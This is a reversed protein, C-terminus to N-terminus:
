SERKGSGEKSEVIDIKDNNGRKRNGRKRNGRKKKGRKKKGRNKRKRGKPKKDDPLLACAGVVCSQGLYIGLYTISGAQEPTCGWFGQVDHETKVINRVETLYADTGGTTSTLRNPLLAEKYRGYRVSQLEKLKFALLQLRYGDTRISGRLVYEREKYECPDFSPKRLANVHDEIQQLTLLRIAAGHGAKGRKRSTLGEKAVAAILRKTLKGPEQGPLWDRVLARQTLAMSQTSAQGMLDRLYAHLGPNKWFFAGLEYETFNMFGDEIPSVPIARWKSRTLYNFWSFSEVVSVNSSMKMDFSFPIPWRGEQQQQILLASPTYEKTNKPMFRDSEDPKPLLRLDQLRKVFSNVIIGTGSSRWSLNGSYLYTMFSHIFAGTKDKDPLGDDDNDNSVNVDNDDEDHPCLYHLIARDHEGIVAHPTSFLTELYLGLVEQCQRKVKSAERVARKICSIILKATDKDPVAENVNACLTGMELTVTPHEWAM